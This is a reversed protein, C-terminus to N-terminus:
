QLTLSVPPASGIVTATANLFLAQAGLMLPTGFGPNVLDVRASGSADFDAPLVALSGGAALGWFLTQEFGGLPIASIVYETEGRTFGFIRPGLGISFRQVEIGVAKAAWFHGLEHVFILVGLLVVTALVTM